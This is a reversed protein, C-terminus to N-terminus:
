LPPKLTDASYLAIQSSFDSTEIEDARNAANRRFRPKSIYQFPCRMLVFIFRVFSPRCTTESGLTHWPLGVNTPVRIMTAWTKSITASPVGQSSIMASYSPAILLAEIASATRSALREKESCLATRRAPRIDEVFINDGTLASLQLFPSDSKTLDSCFNAPIFSWSSREASM